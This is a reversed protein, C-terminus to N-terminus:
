FYRERSQSPSLLAKGQLPATFAWGGRASWPMRRSLQGFVLMARESTHHPRDQATMTIESSSPCVKKQTFYRGKGSLWGGSVSDSVSAKLQLCPFSCIRRLVTVRHILANFLCGVFSHNTFFDYTCM